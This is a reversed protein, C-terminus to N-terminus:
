EGSKEPKKSERAEKKATPVILLISATGICGLVLLLIRIHLNEIMCFASISVMTWMCLISILKSILSVGERSEYRRIYKGLGSRHLRDHLSKSSKYFLWSSLLLFPTTPLGPVFIGIIGLVISIIGLLIFLVKKM